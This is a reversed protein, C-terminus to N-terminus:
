TTYEQRITKVYQGPSMGEYKNFLRFLTTVTNCGIRRALESNKIGPEERLIQKAMKIRYRSLYEKFNEGTAEKFLTSTYCQSLDFHGGIDLLSIDENYHSHIYDLMKSAIDDQELKNTKDIYDIIADFIRYIKGRLEKEDVCMKLDLFVVSGEGFVDDASTNLSETIRNISATLAFIFANVRDRALSRKEFNEEMVGCLIKKVEDRHARITQAILEREVDLPYYFGEANAANVEDETVIANRSGVSFRNEMVVCASGYSRAMDAFREVDAGISGVVEVDFGGEVMMAMDALLERLARIDDGYSIVAMTSKDIDIVTHIIQEKLQDDIFEKIQEKIKEISQKSFVDLLQDYGSLKLLVVRYPGSIGEIGLQNKNQEVGDDGLLGFLLDRLLKTRLPLRTEDIKERLSANDEAMHVFSQRIYLGEDSLGESGYRAVFKVTENVPSYAWKTLLWSLVWALILMVCCIALVVFFLTLAYNSLSDSPLALIYSWNYATSEEASYVRGDIINTGKKIADSDNKLVFNIVDSSEFTDKGINCIMDSGYMMSLSGNWQAVTDYLEELDYTCIVYLENADVIKREIILLTGADGTESRACFSVFVKGVNQSKMFYQRINGSLGSGVQYASFFEYSGAIRNEGIIKDFSSSLRSIYVNIGKETLEHTNASVIRSLENYNGSGTKIYEAVTADKLLRNSANRFMTLRTDVVESIDCLTSKVEAKYNDRANIYASCYISVGFVVILVVAVAVYGRLIRKFLRRGGM